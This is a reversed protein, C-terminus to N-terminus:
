GVPAWVIRKAISNVLIVHREQIIEGIDSRWVLTVLVDMIMAACEVYVLAPQTGANTFCHGPISPTVRIAAAYSREWNMDSSRCVDMKLVQKADHTTVFLAMSEDWLKMKNAYNLLVVM